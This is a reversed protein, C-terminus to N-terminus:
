ILDLYLATKLNHPVLDSLYLKYYTATSVHGDGKLESLAGEGVPLFELESSWPSLSDIINKKNADSFCSPVLLFIRFTHNPHHFLLSTLMVCTHQAYDNDCSAVINFTAM